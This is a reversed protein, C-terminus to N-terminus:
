TVIPFEERLPRRSFLENERDPVRVLLSAPDLNIDFYYAQLVPDGDGQAKRLRKQSFEVQMSSGVTFTVSNTNKKLVFASVAPILIESLKRGSVITVAFEGDDIQTRRVKIRALNQSNNVWLQYLNGVDFSEKDITVSAPIGRYVPLIRGAAQIYRWPGKGDEKAFGLHQVDDVVSGDAGIGADLVFLIDNIKGTDIRQVNGVVALDVAKLLDKPIKAERRWMEESGTPLLGIILDSNVAGTAAEHFTGDGGAVMIQAFGLRQAERTLETAHGPALTQLVEVRGGYGQLRKAATEVDASRDKVGAYRNHIILTDLVHGQPYHSLNRELM